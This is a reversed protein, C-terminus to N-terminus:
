PKDTNTVQSAPDLIEGEPIPVKTNRDALEKISKLFQKVELDNNLKISAQVLLLKDGDISHIISFHQAM